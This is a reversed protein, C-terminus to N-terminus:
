QVATNESGGLNMNLVGCLIVWERGEVDGSYNAEPPGEIRAAPSFHLDYGNNDKVTLPYVGANAVMDAEHIASLLQNTLSTQQLTISVTGSLNNSKVHTAEGDIGTDQKFPAESRAVKVFSGDVFGSMIIPGFIVSVEGPAYTKLM